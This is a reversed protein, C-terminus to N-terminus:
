GHSITQVMRYCIFLTLGIVPLMLLVALLKVLIGLKSEQEVKTTTPRALMLGAVLPIALVLLQPGAANVLYYARHYFVFVFTAIWLTLGALMLANHSWFGPYIWPMTEDVEQQEKNLPNEM